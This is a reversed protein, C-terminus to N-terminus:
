IGREQHEATIAALADSQSRSARDDIEWQRPGKSRLWATLPSRTANVADGWDYRVTTGAAKDHLARHSKATAIPILGLITSFAALMMPRMRGTASTM